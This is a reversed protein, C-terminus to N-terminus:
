FQQTRAVEKMFDPLEKFNKFVQFQHNKSDSKKEFVWVQHNKIRFKEFVHGV